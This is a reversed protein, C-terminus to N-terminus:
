EYRLADIPKIDVARKAPIFGAFLGAGIIVVSAVLVVRIDVTPNTFISMRDASENQSLVVNISETLFIGLVLGIYGFAGTIALSELLIMKLISNPTAGLSKRIGIERTREKVTILMINSIGVIGAILSGIGIIWIFLSIGNLIGMAQLYDDLKNWIWISANDTPDYSHLRALRNRLQDIFLENEERTDLGKLEVTLNSYGSRPPFIVDATTLPILVNGNDRSSNFDYVGIVLFPIKGIRIQKGIPDKDSFLTAKQKKHIVVTRRKQKIDLDNIFRGELINIGSANKANPVIGECTVGTSQAGHVANLAFGRSSPYIDQINEKQNQLLSIDNKDLKIQRGKEYGGYSISTRGPFLRIVNVSSSEFNKAIGNKLGNGAALLVILMFIGWAVSFGTFFTRLKNRKVTDWIEIWIDM